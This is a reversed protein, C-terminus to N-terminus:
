RTINPALTSIALAICTQRELAGGFQLTKRHSAALFLHQVASLNPLCPRGCRAAQGNQSWSASINSWRRSPQTRARCTQAVHRFHHPLSWQIDCTSVLKTWHSCAFCPPGPFSRSRQVVIVRTQQHRHRWRFSTTKSPAVGDIPTTTEQTELSASNHHAAPVTWLESTNKYVHILSSTALSGTTHTSGKPPLTTASRQRIHWSHITCHSVPREEIFWIRRKM